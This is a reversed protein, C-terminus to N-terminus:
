KKYLIHLAVELVIQQTIVDVIFITNIDYKVSKQNESAFELAERIGWLLIYVLKCQLGM